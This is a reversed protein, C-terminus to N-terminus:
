AYGNSHCVTARICAYLMVRVLRGSCLHLYSHLPALGAEITNKERLPPNEPEYLECFQICIVHHVLSFSFFLVECFKRGKGEKRTTRTRLGWDVDEIQTDLAELIM